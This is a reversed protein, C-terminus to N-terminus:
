EEGDKLAKAIEDCIPELQQLDARLRKIQGRVIDRGHDNTLGVSKPVVRPLVNEITDLLAIHSRLSAQTIM